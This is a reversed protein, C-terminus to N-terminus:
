YNHYLLGCCGCIVVLCICHYSSVLWDGTIGVFVSSVRALATIHSVAFSRLSHSSRLRIGITRVFAFSVLSVTICHYPSHLSAGLWAVSCNGIVAFRGRTFVSPVRSIRLRACGSVLLAGLRICHGVIGLRIRHGSHYPLATISVFVSPATVAVSASSHVSHSGIRVSWSSYQINMVICRGVQHDQCHLGIRRGHCHLCYSGTLRYLRYVPWDQRYLRYRASVFGVVPSFVFSGAPPRFLQGLLRCVSSWRAAIVVLWRCVLSGLRGIVVSLRVALSHGLSGLWHGATAVSGLRALSLSSCRASSLCHHRRLLSLPFAFWGVIVVVSCCHSVFRCGVAILLLLSLLVFSLLGPLRSSVASQLSSSLLGVVATGRGLLSCHRAPALPPLRHSICVPSSSSAVTTIIFVPLSVTICHGHHGRGCHGHCYQCFACVSVTVTSIVVSPLRSSRVVSSVRVTFAFWVAVSVVVSVLICGVALWAVLWIGLSVCHVSGLWVIPWQCLSRRYAVIRHNGVSYWGCRDGVSYL